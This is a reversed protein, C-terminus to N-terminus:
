DNVTINRLHGSPALSKLRVHLSASHPTLSLVICVAVFSSKCYLICGTTRDPCGQRCKLMRQHTYADWVSAYLCGMRICMYMEYPHM